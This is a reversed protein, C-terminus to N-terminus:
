QVYPEGKMILDITPLSTAQEPEPANARGLKDLFDVFGGGTRSNIRGSNKVRSTDTAAM